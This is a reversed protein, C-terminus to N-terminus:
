KDYEETIDTYTTQSEELKVPSGELSAYASVNNSFDELVQEDECIVTLMLQYEKKM